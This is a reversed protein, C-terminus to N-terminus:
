GHTDLHHMNIEIKIAGGPLGTGEVKLGIMELCTM